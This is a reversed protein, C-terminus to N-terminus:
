VKMGTIAHRLIRMVLKPNVADVEHNIKQMVGLIEERDWHETVRSFRNSAHRIVKGSFSIPVIITLNKLFCVM